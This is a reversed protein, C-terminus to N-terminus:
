QVGGAGTDQGGSTSNELEFVQDCHFEKAWWEADLANEAVGECSVERMAAICDFYGGAFTDLTGTDIDELLCTLSAMNEGAENAQKAEGTCEYVRSAVTIVAEDCIDQGTMSQHACGASLVLVCLADRCLSLTRRM